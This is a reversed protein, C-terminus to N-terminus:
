SSEEAIDGFSQTVRCKRRSNGEIRVRQGHFGRVGRTFTLMGIRWQTSM